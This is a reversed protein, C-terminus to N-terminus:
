GAKLQAYTPQLPMLRAFATGPWAGAAKPGYFRLSTRDLYVAGNDGVTGSPPGTGSVFTVPPPTGGGGSVGGVAGLALILSDAAICYVPEGVTPVYSSIRPITTQTGAQDIRVTDADPVSAVKAILARVGTASLQERLVYSLTRTFPVTM